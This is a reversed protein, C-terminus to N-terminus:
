VFEDKGMGRNIVIKGDAELKKAISLIEAQATEVDSVRQPALNNLDEKLLEGARKSMNKFIKNIINDPATKMAVILKSNPCEKLLTQFGRDNIHILDEFLFMLRKIEEALENDREEVNSMINTETGKDMTNFMEAVADVGGLVTKSITGMTALESKLVSDLQAIIDPGVFDIVALRMVVDVQLEDPFQKIIDAKRSPNLYTMILAITQPHENMLFNALTRTDVLELAELSQREAKMNINGTIQTARDEGLTDILFNKNKSKGFLLSEEESLEHYFNELVGKVIAIPAKDISGMIGILRKIDNDKLEGFILKTCDNGIANLLIAVQQIGTLDRVSEIANM